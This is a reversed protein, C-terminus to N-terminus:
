TVTVTGYMAPHFACFYEYTGPEEFTVTFTNIGELSEVETETANSEAMAPEETHTMNAAFEEPFLEAFMAMIEEEPPLILGSSVTDEDGTLTYSVDTGNMYQINGAMDVTSPVFAVKNLTVLYQTGNFGPVIWPEGLDYPPLLEFQPVTSMSFPLVIDSITTNDLPFFVNHIEPTPSFFTVSEGANIQLDQPYFQNYSVTLNGRGVSVMTANAATTTTATSNDHHDASATGIAPLTAAAFMITAAGAIAILIAMSTNKLTM